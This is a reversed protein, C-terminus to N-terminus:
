PVAHSRYTSSVTEHYADQGTLPPIPQSRRGLLAFQTPQTYTRASDSCHHQTNKREAHKACGKLRRMPGQLSTHARSERTKNSSLCECRSTALALHLAAGSGSAVLWKDERARFASAAQLNVAVVGPVISWCASRAGVARQLARRLTM